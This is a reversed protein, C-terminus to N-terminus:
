RLSSLSIEEYTLGKEEKLFVFFEDCDFVRISSREFDKKNRTVIADAKIKLAAQYVCADEIDDWTSDLVARFEAEGIGCVRVAECLKKVDCRAQAAYTKKGGRTLTYFIDSAQAGTFWLDFEKVRGLILLKRASAYFPERRCLYDLLVSSDLMLKM